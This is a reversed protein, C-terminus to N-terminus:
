LDVAFARDFSASSHRIKAPRPAKEGAKLLPEASGQGRLLALAKPAVDEPFYLMNSHQRTGRQWQIYLPTQAPGNARAPDHAADTAADGGLVDVSIDMPTVKHESFFEGVRRAVENFDM